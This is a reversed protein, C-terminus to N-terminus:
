QKGMRVLQKDEMCVTIQDFIRRGLGWIFHNSTEAKPNALGKKVQIQTSAVVGCEMRGRSCSGPM